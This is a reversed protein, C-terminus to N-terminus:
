VAPCLTYARVLARNGMALIDLKALVLTLVGIIKVIPTPMVFRLQVVASM